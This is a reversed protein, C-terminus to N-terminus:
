RTPQELNGNVRLLRIRGLPRGLTKEETIVIEGNDELNKLAKKFTSLGMRHASVERYLQSRTIEGHNELLKKRIKEKAKDEGWEAPM